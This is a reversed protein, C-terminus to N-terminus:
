AAKVIEAKMQDITQEVRTHVLNVVQLGLIKRADNEAVQVQSGVKAIHVRMLKLAGQWGIHEVLLREEDEPAPEQQQNREVQVAQDFPKAFHCKTSADDFVQERPRVVHLQVFFSVIQVQKHIVIQAAFAVQHEHEDLGVRLIPIAAGYRLAQVSIEDTSNTVVHLFAIGILCEFQRISVHVNLHVLFSFSTLSRWKFWRPAIRHEIRTRGEVCEAEDIFINSGHPAFM